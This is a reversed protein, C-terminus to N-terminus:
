NSDARVTPLIAGPQCPELSVVIRAFKQPAEASITLTLTEEGTCPTSGEEAVFPKALDETTFVTYYAGKVPNAVTMSFVRNGSTGGFALASNGVLKPAVLEITEGGGGGLLLCRARFDGFEGGLFEVRSVSRVSSATAFWPSTETGVTARVRPAEASSYDLEVTWRVIEDAPYGATGFVHWTGDVYLSPLIKGGSSAFAMALSAGSPIEPNQVVTVAVEGELIVDAGTESPRQPTYALVGSSESDIMVHRSVSDLDSIVGREASWTGGSADTSAAVWDAGPVYGADAFKVDFWGVYTRAVFAGETTASGARGGGTEGSAAFAYSNTSNYAVSVDKSFKGVALPWEAVAKGNLSLTLTGTLNCASVMVSLTANTGNTSVSASPESLIIVPDPDEAPPEEEGGEGEGEGEGSKGVLEPHGTSGIVWVQYGAKEAVDNLAALATEDAVTADQNAAAEPQDSKWSSGVLSSTMTWCNSICLRQSSTGDGTATHSGVVMGSTQASVTGYNASNVTVLTFDYYPNLGIWGVLGGAATKGSITAYNSSNRINLGESTAMGTTGVYGLLGGVAGATPMNIETRNVCGDFSADFTSSACGLIGGLYSPNNGNDSTVGSVSGANLCNTFRARVSKTKNNALGNVSGLIGGVRNALAKEGSFTVMGFNACDVFRVEPVNASYFGSVDGVIGGVGYGAGQMQAVAFAARNTCGVFAAIVGESAANTTTVRGVFGGLSVYGLDQKLLCDASTECGSFSTGETALGAFLGLTGKQASDDVTYGSVSCNSFTGGASVTCFAGAFQGQITTGAGQLRLSAITGANTLCLPQAGLGTLAHGGGDLTGRFVPATEYGSGSLDIDAKIVYVGDPHRMATSFEAPTRIEGDSVDAEERIFVAASTVDPSEFAGRPNDTRRGCVLSVDHLAAGSDDKALSFMVEQPTSWNAPTFTLTAPSVTYRADARDTGVDLTVSEAPASELAFAVKVSSGETVAQPFSSTVVRIPEQPCFVRYISGADDPITTDYPHGSAGDRWGTGFYFYGDHYELSIMDQTHVFSFLETFTEGDTSKWVKHLSTKDTKDYKTTLAYVTDGVVAFDWPFNETDEGFVLRTASIQHNVAVATYGAVPMPYSTQNGTTQHNDRSLVYLNRGKFPTTHWLRCDVRTSRSDVSLACLRFDDPTLDPWLTTTGHQTRLEFRDNAADYWAVEHNNVKTNGAWKTGVLIYGDAVAFLDDPFQVYQVQRRLSNMTGGVSDYTKTKCHVYGNADRGSVDVFTQFRDASRTLGYGTAFVSGGFEALDWVHVAYGVQDTGGPYPMSGKIASSFSWKGVADRSFVHGFVDKCGPDERPDQAPVVLDGWSSIYFRSVCETGLDTEFKSELSLPNIPAMPIPGRNEEVEGSGYFLLGQYFQLDCIARNNSFGDTWRTKLPNGVFELSATMDAPTTALAALLVISTLM